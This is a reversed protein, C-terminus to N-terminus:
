IEVTNEALYNLSFDRGINNQPIFVNHGKIIEIRL